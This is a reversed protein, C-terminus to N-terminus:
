ALAGLIRKLEGLELQGPAVAEGVYAYTIESGFFPAAVRSIRGIEGMAITCVRGEKSAKSTVNLLSLVDEVSNATVALKAIDAGARHEKRLLDLMEKESPTAKFDHSSVIVSVGEDKAEKILGDRLKRDASYEVDVLDALSMCQKLIAIRNKESGRFAGGEKKSRNTLIVPVERLGKVRRLLEEVRSATQERLGDARIEMMDAGMALVAKEMFEDITPEMISACIRM